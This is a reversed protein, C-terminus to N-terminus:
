PVARVSEDADDGLIKRYDARSLEGRFYKAREARNLKALVSKEIHESYADLYRSPPGFLPKLRRGRAVMRKPVVVQGSGEEELEPYPPQLTPKM